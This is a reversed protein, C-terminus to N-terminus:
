VMTMVQIISDVYMLLIWGSFIIITILILSLLTLGILILLNFLVGLLEKLMNQLNQLKTTM